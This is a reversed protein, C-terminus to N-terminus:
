DKRHLRSKKMAKRRSAEAKKKRAVTPSEYHRRRRAEGLIGDQQVKRTFRKLAAEFNENDGIRVESVYYREKDVKLTRFAQCTTILRLKV